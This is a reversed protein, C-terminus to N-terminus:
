SRALSPPPPKVYFFDLCIQFSGKSICTDANSHQSSSFETDSLWLSTSAENDFWSSLDILLM